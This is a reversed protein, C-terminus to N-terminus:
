RPVVVIKLESKFGHTLVRYSEDTHLDGPGRKGDGDLDIWVRVNYENDPEIKQAEARPVRLIFPLVTDSQPQPSVNPIIEEAILRLPRADVYSVDELRIHATAGSFSPIKAAILIQGTVLPVGSEDHFPMKQAM